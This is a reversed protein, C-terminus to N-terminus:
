EREIIKKHRIKLKKRIRKEIIKKLQKEMIKKGIIQKEIRRQKRCM